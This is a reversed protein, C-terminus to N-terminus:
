KKNGKSFFSAELKGERSMDFSEGDLLYCRQKGTRVQIFNKKLQRFFEIKSMYGKYKVKYTYYIVYNPVREIGDRIKYKDYFDQLEKKSLLDPSKESDKEEILELLDQLDYEESM